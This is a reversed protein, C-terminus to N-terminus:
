RTADALCGALMAETAERDLFLEIAQGTDGSVLGYLILM